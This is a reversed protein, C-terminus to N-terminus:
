SLYNMLFNIVVKHEDETDHGTITLLYIANGALTRCLVRQRCISSRLPDNQLIFWFKIWFLIEFQKHIKWWGSHQTFAEAVFFIYLSFLPCYLSQGYRSPLQHQVNAHLISCRWRRRRWQWLIWQWQSFLMYSSKECLLLCFLIKLNTLDVDYSTLKRIFLVSIFFM